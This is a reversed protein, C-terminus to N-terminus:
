EEYNTIPPETLEKLEDQLNAIIKDTRAQYFEEENMWTESNQWIRFLLDRIRKSQSKKKEIKGEYM